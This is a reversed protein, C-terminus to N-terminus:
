ALARIIAVYNCNGGEEQKQKVVVVKEGGKTMIAKKEGGQTTIPTICYFISKDKIVFIFLSM